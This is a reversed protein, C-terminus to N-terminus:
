YEQQFRYRWPQVCDVAQGNALKCPSFRTQWLAKVAAEDFGHGGRAVVKVSRVKGTKDIGIKLSVQGVLGLRRAELPYDAKVEALPKAWEAIYAEAHPVFANPDAGAGTAKGGPAGVAAPATGREGTM